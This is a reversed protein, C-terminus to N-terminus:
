QVSSSGNETGRPGDGESAGQPNERVRQYAAPRDCGYLNQRMWDHMNSPFSAGELNSWLFEAGNTASLFVPTPPPPANHDKPTGGYIGTGPPVITSIVVCQLPTAVIVPSSNTLLNRPSQNCYTGYWSTATSGSTSSTGSTILNDLWPEYQETGQEKLQASLQAKTPGSYYTSPSGNELKSKVFLAQIRARSEPDDTTLRSYVSV